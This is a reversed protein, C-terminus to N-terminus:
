PGRGIEDAGQGHGVSDPPPPMLPRGDEEFQPPSPAVLIGGPDEPLPTLTQVISVAALVLAAVAVAPIWLPTRGAQPAQLREREIQQLATSVGSWLRVDGVPSNADATRQLLQTSAQVRQWQDRCDPCASLHRRLQQEACDDLDRGACLAMDQKARKCNM